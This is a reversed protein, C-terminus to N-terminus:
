AALLQPDHAVAMCWSQRSRSEFSHQAAAALLAAAAQMARAAAAQWMPSLTAAAALRGPLPLVCALYGVLLALFCPLRVHLLLLAGMGEVGVMTLVSSARMAHAGPLLQLTMETLKVRAALYLATHVLMLSERHTRYVRPAIVAVSLPGLMSAALLMFPRSGTTDSYPTCMSMCGVVFASLLFWFIDIRRHIDALWGAFAVEAQRNEFFTLWLWHQKFRTMAGQQWGAQKIFSPVDAASNLSGQIGDCSGQTSAKDLGFCDYEDHAQRRVHRGIKSTSSCPQDQSATSSGAPQQVVDKGLAAELAAFLEQDMEEQAKGRMALAHWVTRSAPLQVLGSRQLKRMCASATSSARRQRHTQQQDNSVTSRQRAQKAPSPQQAQQETLPRAPDAVATLQQRAATDQVQQSQHPVPLALVCDGRQEQAVATLQQLLVPDSAATLQRRAATDQVQQQVPLALVCDDRQEQAVATPQHLLLQHRDQRSPTSRRRRLALYDGLVHLPMSSDSGHRCGCGCSPGCGCGLPSCTGCNCDACVRLASSAGPEDDSNGGGGRRRVDNSCAGQSALGSLQLAAPKCSTDGMLEPLFDRAIAIVSPSMRAAVGALFFLDRETVPQGSVFGVMFAAAGPGSHTFVGDGTLSSVGLKSVPLCLLVVCGYDRFADALDDYDPRNCVCPVANRVCAAAATDEAAMCQLSTLGEEALNSVSVMMRTGDVQWPISLRIFGVNPLLATLAARLRSEVVGQTYANTLSEALFLQTQDDDALLRPAPAEMPAACAAGATERDCLRCGSRKRM